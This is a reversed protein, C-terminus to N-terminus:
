EKPEIFIELLNLAYSLGVRVILMAFSETSYGMALLVVVATDSTLTIAKKAQRFWLPTDSKIRHSIRKRLTM